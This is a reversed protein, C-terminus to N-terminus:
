ETVIVSTGGAPTVTVGFLTVIVISTAARGVGGGVGVGAGDGVGVVYGSGM